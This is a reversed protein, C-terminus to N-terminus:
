GRREQENVASGSGQMMGLTAPAGFDVDDVEKWPRRKAKFGRVTPKKRASRAMTM